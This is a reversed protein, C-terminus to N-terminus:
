GEQSNIGDPEPVVNAQAENAKIADALRKPRNAPDDEGEDKIKTLRQIWYGPQLGSGLSPLSRMFEDVGEQLIKMGWLIVVPLPAVLRHPVLVQKSIRDGERWVEEELDSMDIRAVKETSEPRCNEPDSVVYLYRCISPRFKYIACTGTPTLFACSSGSDFKNSELFKIQEYFSRMLSPLTFRYDEESMLKEAIAIGEPLSALVIRKCCHHCGSECRAGAEKASDTAEKNQENFVTLVRRGIRRVQKDM